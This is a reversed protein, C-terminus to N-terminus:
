RKKSQGLAAAAFLIMAPMVPLRYRMQSVSIVHIAMTGLVWLYLPFLEAIRERLLWMGYFGGLILLPEFLLSIVVLAWRPAGASPHSHDSEIFHKEPRPYFRWFNITKRAWQRATLGPHAAIFQLARRKYLADRQADPLALSQRYWDQKEIEAQALATDGENLAFFENGHLLAMGGHVDLVFAGSVARNRACWFLLPLTWVLVGLAWARWSFRRLLCAAAAAIWIPLAIFASESRCLAALSLSLGAAAANLPSSTRLVACLQWLGVTVLAVDLTESLAMGAYYIFFPYVSAAALALRGAPKSRSLQETAEGIAWATATGVVAQGLRPWLWSAGLKFCLAFFAVPVPPIVVPALAGTEALHLAASVFALEDIQHQRHGGLKLAFAARLAFALLLWPWRRTM